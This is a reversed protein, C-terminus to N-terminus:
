PMDSRTASHPASFVSGQTDIRRCPMAHIPGQTYMYNRRRKAGDVRPRAFASACCPRRRSANRKASEKEGKALKLTTTPYGLRNKKQSPMQASQNIPPHM